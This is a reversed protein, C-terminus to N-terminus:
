FISVSVRLFKKPDKRIDALLDRLETVARNMNDYLQQDHLLQGATGHGANLDTVLQDARSAISQFRQYLVDDTLLKGFTGNGNKLGATIQEANASANAISRGLSEDNLFRGLAGQGSNIRTTITQLNDLSAKLANYAAPDHALKGLTGQGQDLAHMVGSASNVLADMERYLADDTVLKGLTGKGSRIDGILQGAQALGESATQTLENIGGPQNVPVYGWDNLPRGSPAAKIDVVSEGLLSLSGISAESATTVLPRVDKSIVMVVEIQAGSFRIQDVTGVDMGNLRVVAGTKLGAANPFLAKLPYRQWFFGGQGGVAVILLGVMVLAFIGVIGLKLESWALSRTRPM